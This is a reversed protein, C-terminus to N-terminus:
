GRKDAFAQRYHSPTTGLERRFHRQLADPSGLGVFHAIHAVTATSTELLERARAVRQDLLWRGPTTGTADRFLRAVHPPGRAGFPGLRRRHAARRPAGPGM